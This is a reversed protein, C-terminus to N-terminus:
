RNRYDLVNNDTAHESRLPIEHQEVNENKEKHFQHLKHKLPGPRIIIIMMDKSSAINMISSYYLKNHIPNIKIEICCTLLSM